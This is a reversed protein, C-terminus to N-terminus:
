APNLLWSATSTSITPPPNPLVTCYKSCKAPLAERRADRRLRAQHIGLLALQRMDRLVCPACSHLQLVSHVKIGMGFGLAGAAAAISPDVKAIEELNITESLIQPRCQRDCLLVPGQRLGHRPRLAAFSLRAAAVPQWVQMPQRVLPNHIVTVGAPAWLRTIPWATLLSYVLYAAAGLLVTLGLGLLVKRGAGPAANVAACPALSSTSLSGDAMSPWGQPQWIVRQSDSGCSCLPAHAIHCKLALWECYLGRLQASIM